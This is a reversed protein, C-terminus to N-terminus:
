SAYNEELMIKIEKDTFVDLKLCSSPVEVVIDNPHCGIEVRVRGNLKVEVVEGRWHLPNLRHAVKDGKDFKMSYYVM